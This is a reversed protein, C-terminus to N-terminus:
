AVTAYSWVRKADLNTVTLNPSYRSRNEILGMDPAWDQCVTVHDDGLNLLGAEGPRPEIIKEVPISNIEQKVIM